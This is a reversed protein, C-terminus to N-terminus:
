GATIAKGRASTVPPRDSGPVQADEQDAGQEERDAGEHRGGGPALEHGGHDGRDEEEKEEQQPPDPLQDVAVRERWTNPYM